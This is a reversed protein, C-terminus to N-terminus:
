IFVCPNSCFFDISWKSCVEGYVKKIPTLTSKFLYLKSYSTLLFWRHTKSNLHITKARPNSSTNLVFMTWCLDTFNTPLIIFWSLCLEAFKELCVYNLWLGETLCKILLDIRGPVHPRWDISTCTLLLTLIAQEQQRGACWVSVFRCFKVHVLKMSIEFSATVFHADVLDWFIGCWGRLKPCREGAYLITICTCCSTFRDVRYSWAVAMRRCTM